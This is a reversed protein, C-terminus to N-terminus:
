AGVFGCEICVIWWNVGSAALYACLGMWVDVRRSGNAFLVVANWPKGHRWLHTVFAGVDGARWGESVLLLSWVSLQPVVQVGGIGNDSISDDAMLEEEEGEELQDMKIGSGKWIEDVM